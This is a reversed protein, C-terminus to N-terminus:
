RPWIADREPGGAEWDREEGKSRRERVGEEERERQILSQNIINKLESINDILIM